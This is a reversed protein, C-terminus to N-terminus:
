PQINIKIYTYVMKYRIWGFPPCKPQKQRRVITFLAATFM